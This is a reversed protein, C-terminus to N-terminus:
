LLPNAHRVGRGHNWSIFEFVPITEIIEWSNKYPVHLLERTQANYLRERRKLTVSFIQDSIKSNYFSTKCFSECVKKLAAVKRGRQKGTGRRSKKVPPEDEDEDEEEEEQLPEEIGPQPGRDSDVAGPENSRTVKLHSLVLYWVSLM